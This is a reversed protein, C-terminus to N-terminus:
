RCGPRLHMTSMRDDSMWVDGGTLADGVAYVKYARRDAPEVRFYFRYHDIGFSAGARDRDPTVVDFEAAYSMEAVRTTGFASELYRPPACPGVLRQSLVVSTVAVLALVALGALAIRLRRADGARLRAVREVFAADVADRALGADASTQPTPSPTM